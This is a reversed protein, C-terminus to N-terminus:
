RDTGSQEYIQGYSAFRVRAAAIEDENLLRPTGAARAIMYQRALTELLVARDLAEAADRGHCIMGHNALLCASLGGMAAVAVRALEATGFTVYPAVPVSAGGFALVAYHFAPLKEGLCALSTAYDSHTHVIVMAAPAAAYIAAHMEWESSPLAPGKVAGDLGMAVLSKATVTAATGGSASILMGRGTRGSVNGSSGANLGRRALEGYLDALQRRLQSM